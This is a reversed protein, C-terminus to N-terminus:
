HAKSIFFKLQNRRFITIKEQWRVWQFCFRFAAIIICTKKTQTGLNFRVLGLSCLQDDKRIPLFWSIFEKRKRLLMKGIIRAIKLKVQGSLLKPPQCDFCLKKLNIIFERPFKKCSKHFFIEVRRISLIFQHFFGSVFRHFFCNEPRKNEPRNNQFWFFM